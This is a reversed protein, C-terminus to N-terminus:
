AYVHLEHRGVRRRSRLRRRARLRFPVAGRGQATDRLDPSRHEVMGRDGLRQRGPIRDLRRHPEDDSNCLKLDAQAAGTGLLTLVVTIAPVRSGRMRQRRDTKLPIM